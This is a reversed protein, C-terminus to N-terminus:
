HRFLSRLAEHVSRDLEVSSMASAILATVLSSPRSDGRAVDKAEFAADIAADVRLIDLVHPLGRSFLEDDLEKLLEADPLENDEPNQVRPGSGEAAGGFSKAYDDVIAQTAHRGSECAAEMTNLRTWTKMYTGCFVVGGPEVSYAGPTGPWHPYHGALNVLYPSRNRSPTKTEPDFEIEEDLHWALPRPPKQGGKQAPYGREIQHWVQAAIEEATCDWAKKGAAPGDKAPTRWDGIVVSLVGRIREDGRFRRKWFQRQSILSLGWESEAIYTHARLISYDQELYYQIGSFHRLPSKPEDPPLTPDAGAPSMLNAVAALTESPTFSESSELLNAALDRAVKPPVALVVYADDVELDQRRTPGFREWGSAAMRGSEGDWRLATCAGKKFRVGLLELYERWPELFGVTTPANLTRDVGDDAVRLQDLLMQATITGFTRADIEHADLGILARPWYTMARRFADSYRGQEEAREDTYGTARAPSQQVQQVPSHGDSTSPPRLGIYEAWTQHELTARRKPGTLLYRLMSTQMLAIDRSSFGMSAQLADLVGILEHLSTAKLRRVAIPEQGDRAAIGTVHVPMLNDAVTRNTEEIIEAPALPGRVHRAFPVEADVLPRRTLIPIRRMTDILHSYFRPYFRYGHEGPVLIEDLSVHITSHDPHAKLPSINREVLELARPVLALVPVGDWMIVPAHVGLVQVRGPEALELVRRAVILNAFMGDSEATSAADHGEESFEVSPDEAEAFHEIVWRPPIVTVDVLEIFPPRIRERVADLHDLVAQALPDFARSVEEPLGGESEERELEWDPEREISEHFWEVRTAPLFDLSSSPESLLDDLGAHNRFGQEFRRNPSIIEVGTATRRLQGAPVRRWQTRAMGGIEGPEYVTVEFGREALEHAATLGAIGAGFITVKNADRWEDTM